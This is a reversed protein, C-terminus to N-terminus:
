HRAGLRELAAPAEDVSSLLAIEQGLRRAELRFSPEELVRVLAQRLTAATAQKTPLAIGAGAAAVRAANFPQDAFMPAVVLPVGGALAGLVTGSGGHCIVAAAHPIV